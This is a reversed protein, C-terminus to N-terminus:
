NVWRALPRPRKNVLMLRNICNQCSIGKMVYGYSGDSAVVSSGQAPLDPARGHQVSSWPHRGRGAGGVSILTCIPGGSHVRHVHASLEVVDPPAGSM